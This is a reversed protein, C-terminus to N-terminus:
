GPTVGKDPFSLIAPSPDNVHALDIGVKEGQGQPL